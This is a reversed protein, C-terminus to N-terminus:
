ATIGRTKCIKTVPYIQVRENDSDNDDEVYDEISTHYKKNNCSPGAEVDTNTSNALTEVLSYQNQLTKTITSNIDDNIIDIILLTDLIKSHSNFLGLIFYNSHLKINSGLHGLYKFRPSDLLYIITM